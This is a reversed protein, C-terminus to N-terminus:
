LREVLDKAEALGLHTALRVRKIAELKRGQRALSRVEELIESPIQTAISPRPSQILDSAPSRRRVALFAVVLLLIGAAALVPLPVYM